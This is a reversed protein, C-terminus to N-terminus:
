LILCCYVLRICACSFLCETCGRSWASVRGVGVQGNSALVAVCMRVHTSLSGQMGVFASVHVGAYPVRDHSRVCAYVIGCKQKCLFTAMREHLMSAMVPAIPQMSVRAPLQQKCQCLICDGVFSHLSARKCNRLNFYVRSM